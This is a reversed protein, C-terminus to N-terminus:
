LPKLPIPFSLENVFVIRRQNESLIMVEDDTIRRGYKSHYESLLVEVECNKYLAVKDSITLEDTYQVTKYQSVEKNLDLINPGMSDDVLLSHLFKNITQYTELSAWEFDTDDKRSIQNHLCIFRKDHYIAYKGVTTDTDRRSEIEQCTFGHKHLDIHSYIGFQLLFDESDYYPFEKTDLRELLERLKM